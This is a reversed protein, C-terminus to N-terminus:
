RIVDVPGDGLGFFRAVWVAFLLVVLAATLQEISRPVRGVGFAGGTRVYGVAYAVLTGMALPAIVPSLPHISVARAFDGHLLALTARTMGCGPCPIRLTLAMLCLKVPSFLLAVGLGGALAM